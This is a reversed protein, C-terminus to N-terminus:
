CQIPQGLQTLKIFCFWSEITAIIEKTNYKKKHWYWEDEHVYHTEILTYDEFVSLLTDDGNTSFKLEHKKSCKFDEIDKMVYSMYKEHSMESLLECFGIVTHDKSVTSAIPCSEKWIFHVETANLKVSKKKM